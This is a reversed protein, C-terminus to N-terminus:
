DDDTWGGLIDGDKNNQTFSYFKNFNVEGYQLVCVTVERYM